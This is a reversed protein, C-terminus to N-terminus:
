PIEPLVQMNGSIFSFPGDKDTSDLLNGDEDKLTYNFTIVKNAALAM